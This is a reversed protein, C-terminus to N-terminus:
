ADPPGAPPAFLQAAASFGAAAILTATALALPQARAVRDAAAATLQLTPAHAQLQGAVDDIKAFAAFFINLHVLAAEPDGRDYANRARGLHRMAAAQPHSSRSESTGPATAREQAADREDCIDVLFEAIAKVQPFAGSDWLERRTELHGDSITWRESPHSVLARSSKVLNKVAYLFAVEAQKWAQEPEPDFEIATPAADLLDAQLHADYGRGLARKADADAQRQLAGFLSGWRARTAELADDTMVVDLASSWALELDDGVSTVHAILSRLDTLGEDIVASSDTEPAPPADRGAAPLAQDTGTEARTAEEAPSVLPEDGDDREATLAERARDILRQLPAIRGLALDDFQFPGLDIQQSEEDWEPERLAKHRILAPAGDLVEATALRLKLSAERVPEELAVLRAALMTQVALAAHHLLDLADEGTENLLLRTGRADTVLAVSPPEAAAAIRRVTGVPQATARSRAAERAREAEEATLPFDHIESSIREAASTLLRAAQAYASRLADLHVPSREAEPQEAVRQAAEALAQLAAAARPYTSGMSLTRIFDAAAQWEEREADSVVRGISLRPGDETQTFSGLSWKWPGQEEAAVEKMPVM